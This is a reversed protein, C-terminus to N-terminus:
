PGSWILNQSKEKRIQSEFEKEKTGKQYQLGSAVNNLCDPSLWDSIVWGMRSVNTLLDGQPGPETCFQYVLYPLFDVWGVQM